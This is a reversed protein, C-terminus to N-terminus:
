GGGRGEEGTAEGEAMSILGRYNGEAAEEVAVIGSYRWTRLPLRLMGLPAALPLGAAM